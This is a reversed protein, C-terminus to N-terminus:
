QSQVSAALCCFFSFFLLFFSPWLESSSSDVSSRIRLCDQASRLEPPPSNTIFIVSKWLEAILAFERSLKQFVISGFNIDNTFGELYSSMKSRRSCDSSINSNMLAGGCIQVILYLKLRGPIGAYKFCWITFSNIQKNLFSLLTSASSSLMWRNCNWQCFKWLYRFNKCLLFNYQVQLLGLLNLEFM